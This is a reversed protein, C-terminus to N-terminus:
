SRLTGRYNVGIRTTFSGHPQPVFYITLVVKRESLPAGKEALTKSARYKTGGPTDVGLTNVDLISQENWDQEDFVKDKGAEAISACSSLVIVRKIGSRKIIQYDQLLPCSLQLRVWEEPHEGFHWYYGERRAQDVRCLSMTSQVVLCLLLRMGQPDAADM